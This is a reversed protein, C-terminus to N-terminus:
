GVRTARGGVAGRARRRAARRRRRRALRAGAAGGGVDRGIPEEFQDISYWPNTLLFPDTLRLVIRDTDLPNQM